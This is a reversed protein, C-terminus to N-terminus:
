ILLSVCSFRLLSGGTSMISSILFSHSTSVFYRSSSWCPFSCVPSCKSLLTLSIGGGVQFSSSANHVFSLAYGLAASIIASGFNTNVEEALPVNTQIKVLFSTSCCYIRIM